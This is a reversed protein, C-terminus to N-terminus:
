LKFDIGIIFIYIYNFMDDLFWWMLSMKGVGVDGFFLVKFMYDCFEINLNKKYVMEFELLM